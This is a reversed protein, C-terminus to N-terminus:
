GFIKQFTKNIDLGNEELRKIIGEDSFEKETIGFEKRFKRMAEISKQRDVKNKKIKQPYIDNKYYDKPLGCCELIKEINSKLVDFQNNDLNNKKFLPLVNEEIYDQCYNKLVFKGENFEKEIEKKVQDLEFDSINEFNINKQQYDRFFIKNMSTYIKRPKKKKIETKPNLSSLNNVGRKNEFLKINNNYSNNFNNQKNTKSNNIIIDPEKQSDDINEKQQETNKIRNKNEENRDLPEKQKNQNFKNLDKKKYKGNGEKLKNNIDKGIIKNANNLDESNQENENLSNNDSQNNDINKIKKGNDKLNLEIKINNINDIINNQNKICENIIKDNNAKVDLLIKSFQGDIMSNVQNNLKEKIENIKGNVNKDYDEIYKNIKNTLDEVLKKQLFQTLDDSTEFNSINIVKNNKNKQKMENIEKNLSEIEKKQKEEILKLEEEFDKDEEEEKKKEELLEKQLEDIKKNYEDEDEKKPQSNDNSNIESLIMELDNQSEQDIIVKLKMSYEDDSKKKKSNSLDVDNLIEKIVNNQDDIQYIKLDDNQIRLEEKIANKIEDLRVINKQSFNLLNKDNYYIEAKITFDM